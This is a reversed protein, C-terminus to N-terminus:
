EIIPYGTDSEDLQKFANFQALHMIPWVFIGIITAHLFSRIFAILCAFVFINWKHHRTIAFVANQDGSVTDMKKEIIYFGIFYYRLFIYIGPIIFFILGLATLVLYVIRAKIYTFFNSWEVKFFDKWVPKQGQHILSAFRYMQYDYYMFLLFFLTLLPLLGFTLLPTVSKLSFYSIHATPWFVLAGIGFAIMIGSYLFYMLFALTGVPLFLSINDIYQTVSERMATLHSISRAM